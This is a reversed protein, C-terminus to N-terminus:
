FTGRLGAAIQIVGLRERFQRAYAPTESGSRLDIQSVKFVNNIGASFGLRRTLQYGFSL